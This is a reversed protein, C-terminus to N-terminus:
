PTCAEAGPSPETNAKLERIAAIMEANFSDQEIQDFVPQAAAQFAAIQEDSTMVISGGEACWAAGAEVDSPHESIAKDQIAAAAERLIARQEESLKEFAAGNAFLVQFKAFLSVNGTATPSGTLSAGQRLGSEAAQYDTDGMMPAGGLAEILMYSLDSPTARVNLGAFDKPSLIPKDPMLSFPHRLDEPWITLGAMGASSLSDLMRTAIDSTAVVESLADNDIVFPAQLAQFSKIRETDFARSGALGLEMDGRMVHEIVGSEFGVSTDDGAQWIPEITISGNSITKVQEIFELV